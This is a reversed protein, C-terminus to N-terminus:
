AREVDRQPLMKGEHRPESGDPPDPQSRLDVHTGSSVKSIRSSTRLRGSSEGHRRQRSRTGFKRRQKKQSSSSSLLGHLSSSTVVVFFFHTARSRRGGLQGGARWCFLPACVLMRHHSVAHHAGKFPPLQAPFLLHSRNGIAHLQISRTGFKRTRQSTLLHEPVCRLLRGQM